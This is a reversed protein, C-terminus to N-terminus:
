GLLLAAEAATEASSGRLCAPWRTEVSCRKQPFEWVAAAYALLGDRRSLRAVAAAIGAGSDRLCARLKM